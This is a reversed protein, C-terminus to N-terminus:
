SKEAGMLLRTKEQKLGARILRDAIYQLSRGSRRKLEKLEKHLEASM